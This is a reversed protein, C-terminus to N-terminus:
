HAEDWNEGVGTEVKLPVALSAAGSMREVLGATVEDIAEEAVELVLEDHVQMILRAREGLTGLWDEVAIMARKIIDAATGQMPANIASREAYQRRQYNRSNIEPLYLRRGFVTEVFGDDRAKARTEDMFRRVGPYREFYLDVYERASAQDIGLQRALGFPSMGYILGFNIAKASRRQDATVDEPSLAGFVEAATAQHIDRDEAFAKVLSEDGSLHAMIRLEIQSYDASVLRQGEPAVFARRIRRGEPRRVPINQLNPEASSLRGTAAVAQQYTTHVRGTDPDVAKPLNDIYTSKLKALARHELIIQPLRYDHSLEELVDEATSPQGSPTKRKVPLGLQGFLIEQLQKPSGLNFSQGAEDFAQSELTTLQEAIETGQEALRAVDVLVGRREMRQLVHALPQEVQEYLTQLASERELEQELVGRLRAMCGTRPAIFAAAQEIDIDGFDRQKAGKGALSEYDDLALGGFKLALEDLSHRGSTSNVVYSVLMLDRDVGGLTVGHRELIHGVRKVDHVTRGAGGGDAGKSGAGKGKAGKGKGAKGAGGGNAGELLPTLAELVAVAELQEPADDYHHGVPVYAVRNGQEWAFSLAVLPSRIAGPRETHLDFAFGDAGTLADVLNDLGKNSLVVELEREGGVEGGADGGANGGEGFMEGQTGPAPAAPAGGAPTGPAAHPLQKLLSGFELKTYLERLTKVDPARRKLAAPETELELACDITALRRSLYADDKHETLKDAIRKAGRVKAEALNDLNAYIGDLDGFTTLLGAASKAGVGPVGPINDSTDGVLALYDVIQEPQVGFKAVVGDRDLETNFMTNVLRVDDAVLQAMDKDITSVVTNWGLKQAEACLTGIVDDAEVGPVQIIPLGLAEVTSHLPEIQVALDDPMKPRQAKYEAFIEDRFTKGRADFLVAIHEPETESLFKNLMNVVGYVAGTPAGSANTLPPLAHFARYLYSSGDILYLTQKSSM